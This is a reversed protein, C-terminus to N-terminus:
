DSTLDVQSVRCNKQSSELAIAVNVKIPDSLIIFKMHNTCKPIQMPLLRM